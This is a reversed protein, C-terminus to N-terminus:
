GGSGITIAGGSLQIQGDGSGTYTGTRSPTRGSAGGTVDLM